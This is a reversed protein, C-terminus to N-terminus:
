RHDEPDLNAQQWSFDVGKQSCLIPPWEIGQLLCQTGPLFWAKHTGVGWSLVFVSACSQFPERIPSSLRRTLCLALARCRSPYKGLRPFTCKRPKGWKVYLYVRKSFSFYIVVFWKDTLSDTWSCPSSVWNGDNILCWLHKFALILCCCFCSHNYSFEGM